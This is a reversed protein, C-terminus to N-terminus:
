LRIRLNIFGAMNNKKKELIRFCDACKTCYVYRKLYYFKQVLRYDFPTEDDKCGWREMFPRAVRTLKSDLLYFQDRKIDIMKLKDEANDIDDSLTELFDDLEQEFEIADILLKQIDEEYNEIKEDPELLTTPYM